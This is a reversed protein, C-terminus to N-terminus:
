SEKRYYSFRRCSLKELLSDIADTLQIEGGVGPRTKELITWIEAPLVYRGVVAYNSPADKVSPKEVFGSVEARCGEEIHAGLLDAIGYKEVSNSEVPEVMVQAHRFQNFNRIMLALNTRNLESNYHNILVDPLLVAIDEGNVAEKACYIAHGLGHGKAQRVTSIKMDSPCTERVSKLVEEKGKQELQYELEFNVDFHNEIAPKSAHTVLVVERIGASYAEEVVYQIVPKDLITIMEKPIAKSAPLMRTGFGAVPIVAKM